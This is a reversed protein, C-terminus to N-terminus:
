ETEVESGIGTVDTHKFALSVSFLGQIKIFEWFMEFHKPQEIIETRMENTVTQSCYLGPALKDIIGSLCISCM